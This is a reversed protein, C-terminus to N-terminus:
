FNSFFPEFILGSFYKQEAHNQFSKKLHAFIDTLFLKPYVNEIRFLWHKSSKPIISPKPGKPYSKQLITQRFNHQEIKRPL